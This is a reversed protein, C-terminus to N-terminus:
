HPEKPSLLLVLLRLLWVLMKQFYFKTVAPGIIALVERSVGGEDLGHEEEITFHYHRPYTYQPYFQISQEM